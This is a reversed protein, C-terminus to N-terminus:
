DEGEDTLERQIVMLGELKGAERRVLPLEQSLAVEVVRRRQQEVLRDLWAKLHQM